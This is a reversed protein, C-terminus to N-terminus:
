PRRDGRLRGCAAARSPHPCRGSSGGHSRAARSGRPRRVGGDRASPELPADGLSFPDSDFMERGVVLVRQRTETRKSRSGDANKEQSRRKAWGHVEVRVGAQVCILARPNALIKAVREQVNTSTTQVLLTPEGIKVALLDAFKWLDQRLGKGGDPRVAHPNWKEVVAVLWGAAELAAKSRQTPTM